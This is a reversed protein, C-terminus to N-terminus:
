SEYYLLENVVQQLYEGVDIDGCDPLCIAAKHITVKNIETQPEYADVEAHYILYSKVSVSFSVEVSTDEIDLCEQHDGPCYELLQAATKTVIKKVQIKM